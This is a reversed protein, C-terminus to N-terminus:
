PQFLQKEKRIARGVEERFLDAADGLLQDASPYSVPHGKLQKKTKDSLAREDGKFWLTESRFQTEGAVPIRRLVQNGAKNRIELLGEIRGAKFQRTDFVDATVERYVPVKIDNGNTDKMVNGRQDLVYQWGDEINRKERFHNEQIGDPSLTISNVIITAEFDCDPCNKDELVIQLWDQGVERRFTEELRLRFSGPLLTPTHNVVNLQLQTISLYAADSLLTRLDAFNGTQYNQVKTFRAHAERAARKDGKRALDMALLGEEYHWTAAQEKAKPLLDKVAYLKLTVEKRSDPLQIPTYPQILEQRTRIAEALVVIKDWRAPDKDDLLHELRVIDQGNMQNFANGLANVDRDDAKNKRIKELAKNVAKSYRGREYLKQPSSCATVLLTIVFLLHLTTKM